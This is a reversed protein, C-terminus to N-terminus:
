SEKIRMTSVDCKEENINIIHTECTGIVSQYGLVLAMKLVYKVDSSKPHRGVM